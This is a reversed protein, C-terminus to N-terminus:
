PTALQYIKHQQDFPSTFELRWACLKLNSPSKEAKGYLIDDVVPHGLHVMHKRIQHKRGTKITIQIMTQDSEPLYNLKEITSVALKDDIPVTIDFPLNNINCLNGEVVVQYTKKINRHVFLASLSAAAHKSHALLILGNADRDLRHVIFANRQPQLHKEAYRQVTCHDGYKTGQSFTGAPKNWVSYDGEDAILPCHLPPLDIIQPNYYIHIQDDVLLLKKARRLRQTSNKRTLWVAGCSMIKKSLSKSFSSHKDIFDVAFIDKELVSLHLEQNKL